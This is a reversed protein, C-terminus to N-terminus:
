RSLQWARYLNWGSMFLLWMGVWFLGTGLVNNAVDVLHHHEGTPSIDVVIYEMRSLLLLSAAIASNIVAEILLTSTRWYQHFLNWVGVALSAIVVGSILPIWQQVPETFAISLDALQSAPLWLVYNLLLLLFFDGAVDVGQEFIGIKQWRRSAPPLKEPSWNQYPNFYSKGGPPNSLIYFIGTVLAFMVLTKGVLGAILNGVGFHGTNLLHVGFQLLAIVFVVALGYNLVQKYVPFLETSVLQQAPLFSGAVQQPHGLDKLVVSIGTADPERGQEETIAELKDLINARLERIIEDRRSEPLFQGVAGLYRDILEM